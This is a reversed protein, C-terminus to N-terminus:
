KGSIKLYEEELVKIKSDLGLEFIENILRLIKSYYDFGLVLSQEVWNNNPMDKVLISGNKEEVYNVSSNIDPHSFQSVLWYVQNYYLNEFECKENDFEKIMEKISLHSWSYKSIKNKGKIKKIKKYEKDRIEKAESLYKGFKQMFKKEIDKNYYKRLNQNSKIQGVKGERNILSYTIFLKARNQKDDKNIYALNIINELMSRALIAADQGYGESCLVILARFTKTSKAFLFISVHQLFDKMDINKPKFDNDAFDLLKKNIALLQEKKIDNNNM